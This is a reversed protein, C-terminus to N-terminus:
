VYMCMRLDGTLALELQYRSRRMMLEGITETLHLARRKSMSLRAVGSFCRSVFCSEANPIFETDDYGMSRIMM